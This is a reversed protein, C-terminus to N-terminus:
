QVGGQQAGMVGQLRGRLQELDKCPHDAALHAHINKNNTNKSLQDEKIVRPRKIKITLIVPLARM